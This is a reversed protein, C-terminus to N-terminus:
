LTVLALFFAISYPTSTKKFFKHERERERKRECQHFWEVRVVIGDPEDFCVPFYLASKDASVWYPDISMPVEIGFSSYIIVNIWIQVVHAHKM